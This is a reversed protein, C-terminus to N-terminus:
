RPRRAWHRRRGIAVLVKELGEAVDRLDRDYVRGADIQGALDRLLEPWEGRKPAMPVEVRKVVQVRKEVEIVRDIVAVAARGSAMARRQEWARHRCVPSCWKPIRGTTRVEIPRGCWGCPITQGPIRRPRKASTM